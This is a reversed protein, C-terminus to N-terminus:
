DQRQLRALKLGRLEVRRARSWEVAVRIHHLRWTDSAIAAWGERAEAVRLSWRLAGDQGDVPVPLIGPGALAGALISHALIRAKATDDAATAARLGSAHAQFLGVLAIALITLAILTELLSFGAAADGRSARGAPPVAQRPEACPQRRSAAPLGTSASKM